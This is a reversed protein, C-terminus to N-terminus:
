PVSFTRGRSLSKGSTCLAIFFASSVPRGGIFPTSQSSAKSRKQATRGLGGRVRVDLQTRSEVQRARGLPLRRPVARGRRDCGDTRELPEARSGGLRTREAGPTCPAAVPRRGHGCGLSRMTPTCTRRSSPRPGSVSRTSSRLSRASRTAGHGRGWSRLSRSRRDPGPLHPGCSALCSARCVLPSSFALDWQETPRAQYRALARSAPLGPLEDRFKPITRRSPVRRTLALERADDRRSQFSALIADVFREEGGFGTLLTLDADATTRPEGWRPM